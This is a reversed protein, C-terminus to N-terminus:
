RLPGAAAPGSVQECAITRDGTSGGPVCADLGEGGDLLDHDAGGSLEDNGAGGTLTDDGVGGALQDDSAGGDLRDQGQGGALVDLGAGGQVVDDGDGGDLQDNGDGGELRDQGPGGLLVDLGAGGQLVDEGDGGELRDDGDGGVLLDDGGGGILTDRGGAGLLCDAGGTGVLVDDGATGRVVNSGTPCAADGAGGTGVTVTVDAVNDSCDIDDQNQVCAGGAGPGLFAMATLVTGAPLAPDVSTVVTLTFIDTPRTGMPGIEGRVRQGEAACPRNPSAASSLTCSVFRTGTPLEVEVATSPVTFLDRNVLQARYTLLAGAPVSPSPEATFEAIASRPLPSPPWIQTDDAPPIESGEDHRITAQFAYLLRDWDSFGVLFREQRHNVPRLQDDGPAAPTNCTRDPGDTIWTERPGVVPDLPSTFEFRGDDGLPETNLAGGPFRPRVCFGDANVDLRLGRDGADGDCNWDVPQGPDNSHGRFDDPCAFTVKVPLPQAESLAEEDLTPEARRSYDLFPPSPLGNLEYVHNMVSLYNPKGLVNDGGGHQLNLNHGLEHMFSGAFLGGPDQTKQVWEQITVLIDNGPRESCGASARDHDAQKHGAVAYHHTFRRPNRSGFNAPNAKLRRFSAGDGFCGLDLLRRHAVANSLEVHLRIGRPVGSVPDRDVPARAFAAQVLPIAAPHPADHHDQGACDSGPVACDLWDMEVFIDKRDPTAGPLPVDVDGDGDVDAGFTEWDDWLGDQDRDGDVRLIAVMDDFDQDGLRDQDEWRLRFIADPFRDPRLRTTRLHDAGDSNLAPNSSWVRDCPRQPDSQVCLRFRFVSGAPFPQIGPAEPSADLTIRCGGRADSQSQTATVLRLGQLGPAGEAPCGTAVAAARPSSLVLTNLASTSAQVLELTVQGGRRLTLDSASARAAPLGCVLAATLAARMRM